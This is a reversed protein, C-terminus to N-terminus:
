DADQILAIAVELDEDRGERIAAITLEVPVTPLIGINHHQAGDQKVVKMGTWYAMYGGPMYLINANGNAGATPRGVIEALNNDEVTGMVSEAYSIASEDTMFVVTGQIRPQAPWIDWGTAYWGVEHQDPYIIEPYMFTASHSLVDVLHRLVDDNGNPYGRLDFIVGDAAAIDNIQASIEAMSARSLDVYYIGEAVTSIQPPRPLPLTARLTRTAGVEHEGDERLLTLAVDTDSLGISFNTLSQYRRRQDSGPLYVEVEDLYKWTKVGDVRDIVDGVQIQPDLSATVVAQEEIWCARIPLAALQSQFPGYVHGHGDELDAFLRKMVMYFDWESDAKLTWQIAHKLEADWDVDVVDFYPYFHQLTNWALVVAALRTATDPGPQSKRTATDPGPQTKRTSSGAATAPASEHGASLSWFDPNLEDDTLRSRPTALPSADPPPSSTFSKASTVPLALPLSMQLGSGIDKVITEGLAPLADFLRDPAPYGPRSVQACRAGEFPNSDDIAFSYYYPYSTGWGLLQDVSEEFGPNNFPVPLWPGGPDRAELEFADLWVNGIGKQFAGFHIDVADDAVPGVIEYQGWEPDTVPRNSMNDFFGSQGNERDVRLWLQGQGLPFGLSRPVEARVAARLRIEKGRLQEALVVQTVVGIGGWPPYFNERNTRISLYGMYTGLGVGYHQWAVVEDTATQDSAPLPQGAPLIVIGPAVPEFLDRLLQALEDSGCVQMAQDAGDIALQEWDADVAEDAPNFFRAYGYVKAFTELNEVRECDDAFASVPVLLTLVLAAVL